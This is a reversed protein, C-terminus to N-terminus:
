FKLDPTTSLNLRLYMSYITVASIKAALTAYKSLFNLNDPDEVYRSAWYTRSYQANYSYINIYIYIYM